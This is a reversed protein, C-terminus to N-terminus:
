NGLTGPYTDLLGPRLISDLGKVYARQMSTVGRGAYGSAGAIAVRGHGSGVEVGNEEVNPLLGKEVAGAGDLDGVLRIGDAGGGLSAELLDIKLEFSAVDAAQLLVGVGFGTPGGQGAFALLDHLKEFLSGVAGHDGVAFEM